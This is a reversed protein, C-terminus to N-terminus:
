QKIIDLKTFLDFSNMETYMLMQVRGLNEILWAAIVEGV